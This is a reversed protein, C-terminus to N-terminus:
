IDWIYLSQRSHIISPIRTKSGGLVWYSHVSERVSIWISCLDGMDVAVGLAEQWGMLRAVTFHRHSEPFGCLFLHIEKNLKKDGWYPSLCGFIHDLTTFEKWFGAQRASCHCIREALVSLESELIVVMHNLWTITFWSLGLIALYWPIDVRSYWYLTINQRAIRSAKVCLIILSTHLFNSCPTVPTSLISM